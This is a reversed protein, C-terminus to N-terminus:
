NTELIQFLENLKPTLIIETRRNKQRAEATKAAELPVNDARGSPTIRAGPFGADALIRTIETARLVSLDWNDKIGGSAKSIPVDDTHGEVVVNVEDQDKLAKALKQLADEGKKDVKTSGSKFLLQESLSVYVKGNKVNVTLDKSNFGLLANNVKNKLNAVAKDKEDLIRQLEKLKEERAKLDTSLQDIQGKSKNLSADLAKMEAERRALDGSLKSTESASNALLKEHNKNLRDYTNNLDNYLQKTKRLIIGTQISDAVLKNNSKTLEAYLEDLNKKDAQLKALSNDCEAKERELNMKQSLLDDYKKSAVCGSLLAGGLLFTCASRVFTTNM